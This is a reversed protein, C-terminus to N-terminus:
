KRTKAWADQALTVYREPGLIEMLLATTNMEAAQWLWDVKLWFGPLVRSHYIGEANTLAPQYRGHEDLRYFYARRRNPRPDVIWYEPIGAAEYEYFKDERDTTVSDDSVVEIALDAPGDIRNEIVRSLHDTAIFFVDPERGPGNPLKMQAPGAYVRGLGLLDVFFRLLGSLFVVVEQHLPSASMYAIVEGNVWEFHGEQKLAWALFEEYTMKLHPPAAEAQAAELPPSQVTM